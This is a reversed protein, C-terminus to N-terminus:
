PSLHLLLLQSIPPFLCSNLTHYLQHSLPTSTNFHSPTEDFIVNLSIYICGSPIHLCRYGKHNLSYGLFACLQSRFALKHQNYHRLHPWCACGFVKLFNYDPSKNFLLEFPSKNQTVPSPLQNILFSATLFADDWYTLPM